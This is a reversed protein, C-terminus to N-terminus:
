VDRRTRVGQVAPAATVCPHSPWITVCTWCCPGARRAVRVDDGGQAEGIRAVQGGGDGAHPPQEVEVGIGTATSATSPASGISADLTAATGPIRNGPVTSGASVASRATSPWCTETAAARVAAARSASASPSRSGGASAPSPGSRSNGVRGRGDGLAARLDQGPGGPAGRADDPERGRQGVAREHEVGAAVGGVNRASRTASGPIPGQVAPYRAIRTSPSGSSSSASSRATRRPARARPM